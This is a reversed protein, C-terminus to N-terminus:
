VFGNKAFSYLLKTYKNVVQGEASNEDKIRPISASTFIYQLDDMHEVIHKADLESFHLFSNNKCGKTINFNNFLSDCVKVSTKILHRIANLHVTHAM